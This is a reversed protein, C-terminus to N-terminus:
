IESQTRFTKATSFATEKSIEPQGDSDGGAGKVSREGANRQRLV